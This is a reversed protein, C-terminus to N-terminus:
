NNIVAVGYVAKALQELRERNEKKGRVIIPANEWEDQAQRLQEETLDPLYDADIVALLPSHVLFMRNLFITQTMSDTPLWLSKGIRRCIYILADHGSSMYASVGERPTAIQRSMMLARAEEGSCGLLLGIEESNLRTFPQPSYTASVVVIHRGFNRFM